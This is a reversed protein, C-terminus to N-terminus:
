HVLLDYLRHLTIDTGNETLLKEFVVFWLFLRGWGHDGLGLSDCVYRIKNKKEEVLILYCSWSFHVGFDALIQGLIHWKPCLMSEIALNQWYQSFLFSPPQAFVLAITERGEIQFGLTHYGYRFSILHCGLSTKKGADRDVRLECFKTEIKPLHVEWHRDTRM